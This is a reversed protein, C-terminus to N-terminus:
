YLLFLDCLFSPFRHVKGEETSNNNASPVNLRKSPSDQTPEQLAPRAGKKGRAPGAEVAAAPEKKSEVPTTPAAEKKKEPEKAVPQNEKNERKKRSGKVIPLVDKPDPLFPALFKSVGPVIAVM